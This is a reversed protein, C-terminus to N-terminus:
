ILDALSASCLDLLDKPAILMQLGRSGASVSITDWLLATEDLYSPLRKKMGVPSCGGRLYGTLPELERLPLLHVSKNASAVAAKKLDVEQSGPVIAVFPGGRDGVLVLTKFVRDPDMGLAVAVKAADCHEEDAPYRLTSVPIGAAQIRRLANTLM